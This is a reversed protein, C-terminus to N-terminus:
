EKFAKVILSVNHGGFGFSNSLVTDVELDRASGPVYDLDCDPDPVEHNVTPHIKGDRISLIGAQLELAGGAGLLHGIMSKTSNIPVKYAREGFVTKIAATELRDNHPTSTGHASIYSVDEPALGADALAESMARAAGEGGPAPATMHYADATAGSGVIEAYIRAGRKQAHELTEFVLMGAGEGLVFGDRDKDFPRSARSPEDNRTSLAKMSAFGGVTMPTIASEGGGSVMVDAHGLQMMHFTEGIAHSGSACASVVGFNPGKLNFRMSIMGPAMDIIMMPVFFPSIRSPGRNLLRTHQAELTAIGGVGSGVLTGMRTPDESELDLGADKIAMEAAAVTFQVYRDMKRAEVREFYNEPDFDTIEAAIRVAFDTADFNTIASVGNKGALCNKWYEETTLGIPSISGMGTIVVRRKNM